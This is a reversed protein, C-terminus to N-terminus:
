LLVKGYVVFDCSRFAPIFYGEMMNDIIFKAERLGLGTKKRLERILGVKGLGKFGGMKWDKVFNTLDYEKEDVVCILRRAFRGGIRPYIKGCHTCKVPYESNYSFTKRCKSATCIKKMADVEKTIRSFRNGSENSIHGASSVKAM